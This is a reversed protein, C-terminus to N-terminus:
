SLPSFLEVKCRNGIFCLFANGWFGSCKPDHSCLFAPWSVWVYSACCKITTFMLHFLLLSKHYVVLNPSNTKTLFAETMLRMGCLLYAICLILLCTPSTLGFSPVLAMLLQTVPASGPEEEGSFVLLANHFSRTKEYWCCLFFGSHHM